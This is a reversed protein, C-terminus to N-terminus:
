HMPRDRPSEFRPDFRANARRRKISRDTGFADAPLASSASSFTHFLRARSERTPPELVAARQGSRPEAVITVGWDKPAEFTQFRQFETDIGLPVILAISEHTAACDTVELSITQVPM